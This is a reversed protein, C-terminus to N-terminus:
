FYHRGLVAVMVIHSSCEFVEVSGVSTM